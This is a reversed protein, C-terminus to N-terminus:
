LSERHSPLDADHNADNPFEPRSACYECTADDCKTDLWTNTVPNYFADYRYSYRKTQSEHPM